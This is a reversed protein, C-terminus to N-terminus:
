DISVPAIDFEECLAKIKGTHDGYVLIHHNGRAQRIFARADPVKVRLNTRCYDEGYGVLQGKVFVMECFQNDFRAVTVTIGVEPEYAACAGM